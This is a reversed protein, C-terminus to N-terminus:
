LPQNCWGIPSIATDRPAHTHNCHGTPALPNIATDQPAHPQYCRGTPYLPQSCHGIPCVVKKKLFRETFGHHEELTLYVAQRHWSLLHVAKSVHCVNINTDGWAYVAGKTMFEALWCWRNMNLMLTYLEKVTMFEALWFRINM